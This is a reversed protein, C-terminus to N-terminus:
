FLTAQRCNTGGRQLPLQYLQLSVWFLSATFRTSATLLRLYDGEGELLFCHLELELIKIFFVVVTQETCLVLVM